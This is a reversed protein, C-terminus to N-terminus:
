KMKRWQYIRWSLDVAPPLLAAPPYAASLISATIMGALSLKADFVSTKRELLRERAGSIKDILAFDAKGEYAKIVDDVVLEAQAARFSRDLSALIIPTRALFPRLNKVLWNRLNPNPTSIIWGRSISAGISTLSTTRPYSLGNVCFARCTGSAEDLRSVIFEPSYKQQIHYLVEEEEKGQTLESTRVEIFRVGPFIHNNGSVSLYEAAAEMCEMSVSSFEKRAFGHRKVYADIDTIFRGKRKLFRLLALSALVGNSLPEADLNKGHQREYADAMEDVDCSAKKMILKHAFEKMAPQSSPDYKIMSALNLGFRAPLAPILTM